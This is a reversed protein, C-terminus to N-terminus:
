KFEISNLMAVVEEFSVNTDKIIMGYGGNLDGAHFVDIKYYGDGGAQMIVRVDGREYLYNDQDMYLEVRLIAYVSFAVSKRVSFIDYDEWDLLCVCKLINYYSDPTGYGLSAFMKEVDKIGYKKMTEDDEYDEPNVLSMAEDFPETLMIFKGEGDETNYVNAAEYDSKILYDPIRMTYGGNDVEMSDKPMTDFDTIFEARKCEPLIERTAARLLFMPVLYSALAAIVLVIVIVAIIIKTKKKM